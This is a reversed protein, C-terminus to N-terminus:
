IDDGLCGELADVPARVLDVVDCVLHGAAAQLVQVVSYMVNCRNFAVHCTPTNQEM